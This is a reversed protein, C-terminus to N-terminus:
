FDEEEDVDTRWWGHLIRGDEFVAKARPNCEWQWQKLMSRVEISNLGSFEHYEDGAVIHGAYTKNKDELYWGPPAPFRPADWGTSEAMDQWWDRMEDPTMFDMTACLDHESICVEGIFRRCTLCPNNITAPAPFNVYDRDRKNKAM